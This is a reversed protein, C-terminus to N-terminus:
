RSPLPMGVPKGDRNGGPSYRCVLWQYGRGFAIGCGLDTTTPWIMQSYHACVSWDGACVMPYIGPHFLRKEAIWQRLLEDPGWDLFGPQINEREIGRGERPAHELKGTRALHQAWETANRALMPNWRLPPAGVLAREANHLELIRSFTKGLKPQDFPRTTTKGDVALTRPTEGAKGDIWQRALGTSPMACACLLLGAVFVRVNSGM